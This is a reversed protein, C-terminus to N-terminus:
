TTALARNKQVYYLNPLHQQQECFRFIQQKQRRSDEWHRHLFIMVSWDSMGKFPRVPIAASVNAASNIGNGAAASANINLV